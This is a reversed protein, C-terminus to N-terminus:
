MFAVTFGISKPSGDSGYTRVAVQGSPCLDNFTTNAIVQVSDGPLTAIDGYDPTALPVTSAPAIGLAAIDFCFTGEVPNQINADGIRFAHGALVRGRSTVEAFAKASGPAGPAGQPGQPGGPGAFGRPGRLGRPGRRNHKKKAVTATSTGESGHMATAAYGTGGLAVFLALCAIVL